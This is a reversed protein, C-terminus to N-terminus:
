LYIRSARFEPPFPHFARASAHNAQFDPGDLRVTYRTFDLTTGSEIVGRVQWQRGADCRPRRRPTALRGPRSASESQALPHRLSVGTRGARSPAQKPKEVESFEVEVHASGLWEEHSPRAM